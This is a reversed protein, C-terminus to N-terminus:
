WRAHRRRRRKVPEDDAVVVPEPEEFQALWEVPPRGFVPERIIHIEPAPGVFRVLEIPECAQPAPPPQMVLMAGAGLTGAFILPLPQNM